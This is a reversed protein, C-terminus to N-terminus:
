VRLQCTQDGPRHLSAVVGCKGFDRLACTVPYTPNRHLDTSRMNRSRRPAPAAGLSSSDAEGEEGSPEPPTGRPAPSESPTPSSPVCQFYRAPAGDYGVAHLTETVADFFVCLEFDLGHERLLAQVEDAVGDVWSDDQTRDNPEPRRARTNPHSKPSM